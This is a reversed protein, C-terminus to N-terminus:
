AAVEHDICSEGGSAESRQAGADQGVDWLRHATAKGYQKELVAIQASDVDAGSERLQMIYSTLYDGPPLEILVFSVTATALLVVLM